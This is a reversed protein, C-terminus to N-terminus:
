IQRLAEYDEDGSFDREHLVEGGLAEVANRVEIYDLYPLAPDNLARELEPLAREDGYKLLYSAYLAPNNGQAFQRMLLEFVRDDERVYALVDLFLAKGTDTAGDYADLLLQRCQAAYPTLADAAREALDDGPQAQAMWKVYLAFPADSELQTLMGIACMKAEDEDRAPNELLIMLEAVAAEGLQVIRDLMLDPVAVGQKFYDRMWKVLMKANDYQAFYMSPSVRGLWDAPTNLWKLYVDPFDAEMEDANKYKSANQAVWQTTYKSFQADFDICKM